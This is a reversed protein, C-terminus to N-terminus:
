GLDHRCPYRVGFWAMVGALLALWWASTTPVAAIPPLVLAGEFSGIDAAAGLVRPFAAGRQDSALNAVNNGADLAPSGVSLAHTRTPGGNNALALLLPPAHLTDAPLAVTAATAVILNNAGTITLASQSSIDAVGGSAVNDAVITSQLAFAQPMGTVYMGAGNVASNRAITSNSVNMTNFLRLFIGGGVKTRATNGSITSDAVFFGGHSAIGGGTGFSYNGEITTRLAYGGADAFIGGGIDYSGHTDTPNFTARNGTVTSDYLLAVGRYAFAGGGYAATFTSPPSGLAVNGSLISTFLTVGRAIVGGGYAGEGESHCGSVTSHDLIVYGNSVICAGAAVHYGSVISVGNRVTMGGLTLKGSGYHVFVRDAGAGEIALKSAGAGVVNLNDLAVPIAGQSLTIVSCTLAGLDIMDGEHAAAIISRLSGGNNDDACNTAAITAPSAPSAPRPKVGVAHLAQMFAAVGRHDGPTWNAPMAVSFPEVPAAVAGGACALTLAAALPALRFRSGRAPWCLSM